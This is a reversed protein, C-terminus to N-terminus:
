ISLMVDHVPRGSCWNKSLGLSLSPNLPSYNDMARNVRPALVTLLSSAYLVSASVCSM